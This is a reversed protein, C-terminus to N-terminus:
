SILNLVAHKINDTKLNKHFHQDNILTMKVEIFNIRKMFQYYEYVNQDSYLLLLTLSFIRFCLIASM